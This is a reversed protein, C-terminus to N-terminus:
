SFSEVIFVFWATLPYCLYLILRGALPFVLGILGGVGGIVMIIPITWIVLANVVPALPNFQGFVGFLIPLVFVQAALSTSLGERFIGPIFQVYSNVKREFLMLSATASFSLVFGLDGVWTPKVILMLIASLFLTRWALSVRGLGQALFMISGMIGARVMPADLGAIVCYIWVCVLAVYVAYRRQMILVLVAILFSAVMTVNMGSAVVVHTTGSGQLSEWFDQPMGEKAGLVIGAVLSAHPQPITRKWFAIMRQRLQMLPNSTKQHNVLQPNKLFDKDVWGEVVVWDGYAIEPYKPLYIKLDALLIRQDKDFVLPVSGVRGTIRVHYGQKYDPATTALRALLLVILGFWLYREM